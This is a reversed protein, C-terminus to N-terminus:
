AAIARLMAPLVGLEIRSGCQMHVMHQCLEPRVLLLRDAAASFASLRQNFHKRNSGTWVALWLEKAERDLRARDRAFDTPFQIITATM